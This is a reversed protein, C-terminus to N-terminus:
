IYIYESTTVSFRNLMKKGDVILRKFYTGCQVNKYILLTEQFFSYIEEPHLVIFNKKGPSYNTWKAHRGLTYNGM